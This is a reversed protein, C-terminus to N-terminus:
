GAILRGPGEADRGFRGVAIPNVGAGPYTAFHFAARGVLCILFDTVGAVGKRRMSDLRSGEKGSPGGHGFFSQKLFRQGSRGFLTGDEQRLRARPPGFEPSGDLRQEGGVLLGAVHQVLRRGFRRGAETDGGTAM